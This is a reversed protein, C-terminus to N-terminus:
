EDTARRSRRGSCCFLKRGGSLIRRGLASFFSWHKKLKQKATISDAVREDINTSVDIMDVEENTPLPQIKESPSKQSEDDLSSGFDEGHLEIKFPDILALDMLQREQLSIVSEEDIRFGTSTIGSEEDLNVGDGNFYLTSVAVLESTSDFSDAASPMILVLSNEPDDSEDDEDLSVSEPSRIQTLEVASAIEEFLEDLLGRPSNVMLSGRILARSNNSSSINMARSENLDLVTIVEEVLEDVITVITLRRRIRGDDGGNYGNEMKRQSNNRM